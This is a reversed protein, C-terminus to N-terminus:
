GKALSAALFIGPKQWEVAVSTFIASSRGDPTTVPGHEPVDGPAGVRIVRGPIEGTTSWEGGSLKALVEEGAQYIHSTRFRAGDSSVDETMLEEPWRTGAARVFIPLSFFVRAASRRERGDPPGSGRRLELQLGVQYSGSPEREVRMIRAPTEPQAGASANRDFPCAVWVRAGVQCYEGRRLLLGDRSVDITETSELRMGLPGHWRLRAPLHLPARPHKRMETLVTALAMRNIRFALRGATLLVDKAQKWGLVNSARAPLKAVSVASPHAFGM